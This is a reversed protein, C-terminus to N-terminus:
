SKEDPQRSEFLSKVGLKRFIAACHHMVTKPRM